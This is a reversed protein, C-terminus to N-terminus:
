PSKREPLPTPKSGVDLLSEHEILVRHSHLTSLDRYLDTRSKATLHFLSVLWLESYVTSLNLAGSSPVYRLTPFRQLRPRTTTFDLSPVFWPLYLEKQFSLATILNFSSQLPSFRL